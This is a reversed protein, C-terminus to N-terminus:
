PSCASRGSGTPASTARSGRRPASGTTLVRELAEREDPQPLARRGAGRLAAGRRVPQAPDHCGVIWMIAKTFLCSLVCRAYNAACPMTKLSNVLKQVDSDTIDDLPRDGLAPIIYRRLSSRFHSATEPKLHMDIHEQEFRCAFERVHAVEAEIAPAAVATRAAPAQEDASTPVERRALIAM